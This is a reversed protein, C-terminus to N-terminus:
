PTASLLFTAIYYRQALSLSLSLSLSPPNFLSQSLSRGFVAAISGLVVFIFFVSVKTVINLGVYVLVTMLIVLLVGLTSVPAIPMVDLSDNLSPFIQLMVTAAGVAELVALMTVGFYYMIGVVLGIEAGLSRSIMTYAGGRKPVSNTAIASVSLSTLFAITFCFVVICITRIIGANGVMVPFRLFILVGWMNECTPVLVGHMMGMKHEEHGAHGHEGGSEAMTPSGPPPAKDIQIPATTFKRETVAPSEEDLSNLTGGKPGRHRHSPTSGINITPTRKRMFNPQPPPEEPTSM